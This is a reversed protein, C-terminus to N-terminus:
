HSTDIWIPATIAELQNGPTRIEAYICRGTSSVAVEVFRILDQPAAASFNQQHASSASARPRWGDAGLSANAAVRDGVLAVRGDDHELWFDLRQGRSAFTRRQRLAGLIGERTPASAYAYTAPRPAAAEATSHV